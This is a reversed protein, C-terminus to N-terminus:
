FKFECNQNNQAKIQPQLFEFAIKSWDELNPLDNVRSLEIFKITKMENNSTIEFEKELEIPFIIGVHKKSKESIPTYVVVPNGIKANSLDKGLEDKEYIERLMTNKFITLNDTAKDAEDLHGGVYLLTKGKEPSKEGTSKATKEIALIKGNKTFIMASPIPQVVDTMEEVLDRFNYNISGMLQSFGNIGYRLNTKDFKIYGIKEM